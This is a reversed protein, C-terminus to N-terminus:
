PLDEEPASDMRMRELDCLLPILQGKKGARRKGIYLFLRSNGKDDKLDNISTFWSATRSKNYDEAVAEPPAVKGAWSKELQTTAAVAVGFDQALAAIDYHIDTSEHRKDNYKRQSRLHDPSDIILLRPIRGTALQRAKLAARIDAVTGANPSIREIRLLANMRDWNANMWREFLEREPKTMRHERINEEPIGTFRSIYRCAVAPKDMETTVHLAPIARSVSKAGTQIMSISKGVNTVGATLYEEGVKIGKWRRDIYAFGTPVFDSAQETTPALLLSKAIELLGTDGERADTARIAGDGERIAESLADTDKRELADVLKEAVASGRQLRHKKVMEDLVSQPSGERAGKIERIVRVAALVEDDTRFERQVRETLLRFGPAESHDDVCEKSVRWVWNREPGDFRYGNLKSAAKALYAADTVCRNLFVLELDSM